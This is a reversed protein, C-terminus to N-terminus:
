QTWPSVLIARIAYNVNPSPHIATPTRRASKTKASVTKAPVIKTSFSQAAYIYGSIIIQNILHHGHDHDHKSLGDHHWICQPPTHVYTVNRWMNRQNATAVPQLRGDQGVLLVAYNAGDNGLDTVLTAGSEPAGHETIRYRSGVLLINAFSSFSM